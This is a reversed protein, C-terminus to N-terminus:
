TTIKRGLLEIAITAGPFREFGDRTPQIIEIIGGFHAQHEAGIAEKGLISGMVACIRALTQHARNPIRTLLGSRPAGYVDEYEEFFVQAGSGSALCVTGDTFKHREFAPGLTLYNPVGDRIFSIIASTDHTHLDSEFDGLAAEIASRTVDHGNLASLRRFVGKGIFPTGAYAAFIHQGIIATKQELRQPRYITASASPLILGSPGLMRTTRPGPESILTDAIFYRSGDEPFLAAILTV